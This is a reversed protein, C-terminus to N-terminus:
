SHQGKALFESIKKALADLSWDTKLLCEMEGIPDMCIDIQAMNTLLLMPVSKGWEDERIKRIADSGSMRPMLLDMIILDPHKSLATDVGAVGDCEALVTYGDATLIEGLMASFMQDDDVLLISKNM